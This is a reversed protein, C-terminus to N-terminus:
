VKNTGEIEVVNRKSKKNYSDLRDLYENREIQVMKRNENEKYYKEIPIVKGDPCEIRLVAVTDFCGQQANLHDFTRDYVKYPKTSPMYPFKIPFREYVEQSCLGFHHSSKTEEDICTVYDNDTYRVNGEKDVEKFVSTCRKNQFTREGKRSNGGFWAWEEDSGNLPTLPMNNMLRILVIKTFGWSCGSHGDKLMSKFARLASAYIEGGYSFEKPNYKRGHEEADKREAEHELEIAIAIEREAWLEISSKKEFLKRFLKKFFRM